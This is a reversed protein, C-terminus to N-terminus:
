NDYEELDQVLQQTNLVLEITETDLEKEKINELINYVKQAKSKLDENEKFAKNEKISKLSDKLRSIEENM